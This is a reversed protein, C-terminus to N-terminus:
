VLKNFNFTVGDQINNAGPNATHGAGRVAFKCCRTCFKSSQDNNGGSVGLVKVATAVEEASQPVFIYAPSIRINDLSWYTSLAGNYFISTNKSVRNSLGTAELVGGQFFP